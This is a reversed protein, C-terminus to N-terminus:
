KKKDKNKKTDSKKKSNSKDTAKKSKNAMFNRRKNSIINYKSINM